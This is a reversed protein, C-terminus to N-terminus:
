DAIVSILQGKALAEDCLQELQSLLGIIDDENALKRIMKIEEILLPIESSTYDADEYYEHMRTILPCTGLRAALEILYQHTAIGISVQKVPISGDDFITFDLAMTM